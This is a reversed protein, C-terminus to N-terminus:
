HLWSCRSSPRAGTWVNGQSDDGCYSWYGTFIDATYFTVRFEGWFPSGEREAPCRQDAKGRLWTGQFVDGSLTGVVKGNVMSFSVSYTGDDGMRITVPGQNTEWDGKIEAAHVTGTNIAVMVIAPLLLHRVM